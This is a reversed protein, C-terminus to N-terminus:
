ILNGSLFEFWVFLCRGFLEWRFDINGWRVVVGLILLYGLDRYYFVIVFFDIVCIILYDRKYLIISIRWKDVGSRDYVYVKWFFVDCLMDRVWIKLILM